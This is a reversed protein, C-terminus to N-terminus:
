LIELTEPIATPTPDPSSTPIVTPEPSVTPTIETKPIPLPDAPTPSVTTEVAMEVATRAATQQELSINFGNGSTIAKDTFYAGTMSTIVSVGAIIPLMVVAKRASNPIRPSVTKKWVSKLERGITKLEEYIV